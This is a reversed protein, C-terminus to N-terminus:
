RMMGFKEMMKERIESILITVTEPSEGHIRILQDRVDTLIDYVTMLICYEDEELTNKSCADVDIRDM